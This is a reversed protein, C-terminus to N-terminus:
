LPNHINFAHQAEPPGGMLMHCVFMSSKVCTNLTLSYLELSALKSQRVQSGPLALPNGLYRVKDEPLSQIYQPPVEKQGQPVLISISCKLCEPLCALLSLIPCYRLWTNSNKNGTGKGAPLIHAFWCALALIKADLSFQCCKRLSPFM